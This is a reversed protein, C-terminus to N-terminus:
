GVRRRLEIGLREAPSENKRVSVKSKKLNKSLGVLILAQRIEGM